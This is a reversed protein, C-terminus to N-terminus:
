QTPHQPDPLPIQPESTFPSAPLGSANFLNVQPFNRWGYRVYKPSRVGPSSVIVSEGEIRADAAVFHRDEGAIEFGTVAGGRANLGRAHDFWVHVGDAAISTQRYAPGSDEVDEGYAIKRAALALRAGVDQKDAPHVNDAEGIDITVAMGTNRLSLTRRQAERVIPWNEDPSSKYSAIQVFLFPFDGENWQQRWDRILAPFLREYTSAKNVDSNSEGQYWIVGKIPFPVIPAVMANYLWSPDWSNLDPRWDHHPVPKGAAKAEDDERKEAERIVADEAQDKSKDAWQAFVPMLSADSALSQMSVWAEAPTGGWSSDILGIPVHQKSTIERAFFYAVASFSAATEPTCATWTAPTNEGDASSETNVDRLPYPSAKLRVHMLRINPQNANRIEEAGNKLPADGFGLLPFQMNSQGSAFWVDGVLVDDLVIRNSASVTLQYPGGAKKPPLYLNWDGLENATATATAGDLAATVQEGPKAWGWLHIPKDRQLVMHSSLVNPLRVESHAALPLFALSALVPLLLRPIARM